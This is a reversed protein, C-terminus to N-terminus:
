GEKVSQERLFKLMLNLVQEPRELASLHGTNELIELQASLAQALVKGRRLSLAKDETGHIVLAPVGLQELKPKVDDRSKLAKLTEIMSPVHVELIRKEWLEILSKQTKRATAGFMLELVPKRM